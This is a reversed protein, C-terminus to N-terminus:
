QNARRNWAEIAGTSIERWNEFEEKTVTVGKFISAGCERCCILDDVYLEKGWRSGSSRTIRAKSGCFPCPDIKKTIYEM